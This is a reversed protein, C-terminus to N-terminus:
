DAQRHSIRNGLTGFFDSRFTTSSQAKSGGVGGGDLSEDPAGAHYSNSHFAHGIPSPIRCANTFFGFSRFGSIKPFSASTAHQLFRRRPRWDNMMAIPYVDARCYAAPSTGMSESTSTSPCTRWVSNFIFAGPNALSTRGKCFDSLVHIRRNAFLYRSRNGSQSLIAVGGWCHDAV